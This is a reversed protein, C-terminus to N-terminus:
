RRRWWRGPRVARCAGAWRGPSVQGSRGVQGAQHRGVVPVLRHGPGELWQVGLGEGSDVQGAAGNRGRGSVRGDEVGGVLLGDGGEQLAVQLPLVDDLDVRDDDTLVLAQGARAEVVDQGHLGPGAGTGFSSM